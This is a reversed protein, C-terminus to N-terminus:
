LLGAQPTVNEGLVVSKYWQNWAATNTPLTPGEPLPYILPTGAPPTPYIASM